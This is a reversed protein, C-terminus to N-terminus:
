DDFNFELQRRKPPRKKAPPLQIVDLVAPTYGGYQRAMMKETKPATTLGLVERAKTAAWEAHEQHVFTGLKVTQGCYKFQVLWRQDPTSWRVGRVSSQRESPTYRRIPAYEDAKAAHSPTMMHLRIYAKLDGNMWAKVRRMALSKKRKEQERNRRAKTDRRAEQLRQEPTKTKKHRLPNPMHSSYPMGNKYYMLAM